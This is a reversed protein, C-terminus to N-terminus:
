QGGPIMGCSTMVKRISPDYLPVKILVSGMSSDVQVLVRWTTGSDWTGSIMDGMTTAVLDFISGSARQTSTPDVLTLFIFENNFKPALYIKSTAQDENIRTTGNVRSPLENGYVQPQYAPLVIAMGNEDTILATFSMRGARECKVTINAVAGRGNSQESEAIVDVKDTMQNKNEESSWSTERLRAYAEGKPQAEVMQQHRLVAAQEEAVRKQEADVQQKQQLEEQRRKAMDAYRADEAAHQRQDRVTIRCVKLAEEVSRPNRPDPGGTSPDKPPGGNSPDVKPYFINHLCARVDPDTDNIIVQQQPQQQQPQQRQQQQMARQMQEMIGRLQPPLGQANAPTAFVAATALILSPVKM